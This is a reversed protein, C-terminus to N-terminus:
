LSRMSIKLSRRKRKEVLKVNLIGVQKLGYTKARYQYIKKSLNM